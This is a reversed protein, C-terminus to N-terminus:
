AAEVEEPETKKRFYVRNMIVRILEDLLMATFVGALGTKFVVVMLYGAIVVFVTGCIQTYLMWRTKGMGRIGGGFIMNGAKPLLIFASIIFINRSQDIVSLDSTFIRSFFDPVTCFLVMFVAAVISSMLLSTRIITRIHGTNKEGTKIGSLTTSASGLAMFALAPIMSVSFVLSYIGAALPSISNCLRILLINGVNWLLDELGAPIGIAVVSKFKAFQAQKISASSLRCLLKKSFAAPLFYCLGAIDAILTALAACEIGMRPFGFKGFILVWDLFINVGSRIIASVFMAKNQGNGNFIAQSTTFFGTLLISYMYIRSYKLTLLLVNGDLGMLTYILYDGLFWGLFVLASILSTYLLSSGLISEGQSYNKEGIKQSLLIATGTGLDYLFSISTWISFSANSVASLYEASVAGLFAQDTLRQVQGIVLSAFVPTGIKILPKTFSSKLM